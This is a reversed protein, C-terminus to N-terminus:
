HISELYASFQSRAVREAWQYTIGPKTTARLGPRVPPTCGRAHTADGFHGIATPLRRGHPTSMPSLSGIWLGKSSAATSKVGGGYGTRPLPSRGRPHSGQGARTARGPNTAMPYPPTHPGEPRVEGNRAGHRSGCGRASAAPACLARGPGAARGTARSACLSAETRSTVPQASSSHSASATSRSRGVSVTSGTRVTLPPQNRLRSPRQAVRATAPLM